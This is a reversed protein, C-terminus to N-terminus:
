ITNPVKNFPQTCVIKVRDWKESSVANSLKEVGFMRVTNRNTGNRSELPTMFSSAVLIVQFCNKKFYKTLKM